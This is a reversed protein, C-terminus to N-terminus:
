KNNPLWCWCQLRRGLVPSACPLSVNFTFCFDPRHRVLDKLLPFYLCCDTWMVPASRFFLEYKLLGARGRANKTWFKCCHGCLIWQSSCGARATLTDALFIIVSVTSPAPM